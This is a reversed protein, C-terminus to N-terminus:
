DHWRIRDCHFRRVRYGTPLNRRQRLLAWIGGLNDVSIRSSMFLGPRGLSMRMLQLERRVALLPKCNGNAGFYGILGSGAQRRGLAPAEFPMAMKIASKLFHKQLGASEGLKVRRSGLGLRTAATTWAVLIQLASGNQPSHKPFSM